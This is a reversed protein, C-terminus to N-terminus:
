KAFEFHWHVEISSATWSKPLTAFPAAKRVAELAAKDWAESGSATGLKAELVNGERTITSIVVAKKGLAPPSTAAWAKAVKDFAARQWAADEFGTAFYANLRPKGQSTKAPDEAGAARAHAGPFLALAGCLIWGVLAHRRM